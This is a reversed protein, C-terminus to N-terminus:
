THSVFVKINWNEKGMKLSIQLKITNPLRELIIPILLPGFHHYSIGLSNLSRVHSEVTDYLKRLDKVGPHIVPELKVLKKMHCAIIDQENGYRDNLLNWAETYNESTLTFGEIAQLASKDLYTKLCTFKEINTISENNHVAAGFTEKLSKWDLHDGSFTKLTTNPFKEGHNRKFDRRIEVPKTMEPHYELFRQLKGKAKKLSMNFETKLYEMFEIDDVMINQIKDRLEMAEKKTDLLTELLSKCDIESDENTERGVFQDVLPFTEKKANNVQLRRQRLLKNLEDRNVKEEVM